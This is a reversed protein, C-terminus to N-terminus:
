RLRDSDRDGLALIGAWGALVMALGPVLEAGLWGQIAHFSEGGRVVRPLGPDTSVFLAEPTRIWAILLIMTSLFLGLMLVVFSFTLLAPRVQIWLLRLRAGPTPLPPFRLTDAM